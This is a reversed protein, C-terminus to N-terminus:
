EFAMQLYGEMKSGKQLCLWVIELQHHVVDHTYIYNYIIYYIYLCVDRHYNIIIDGHIGLFDGNSLWEFSGFEDAGTPVSNRWPQRWMEM